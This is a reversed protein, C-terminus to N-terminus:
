VGNEMSSALEVLIDRMKLQDTVMEELFSRGATGVVDGYPGAASTKMYGKKNSTFALLTVSPYAKAM